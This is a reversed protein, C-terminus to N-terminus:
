VTLESESQMQVGRKFILALVFVLGAAFLYADMSGPDGAVVGRKALWKAQGDLILSIIWIGLLNMSIRELLSAIRDTFPSELKVASLIRTLDLVMAAKLAPIAVLLSLYSFYFWRDYELLGSLDLGSYLHKAAETNVTLSVVWSVVLGCAEAILGICVIWSLWWMVRILWTYKEFSM